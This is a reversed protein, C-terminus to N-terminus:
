GILEDALLDMLLGDHWGAGDADREYQRLVGVPRFGVSTYTRIAATNTASPDITLRHHGLTDILHHAVVRIAERGYGRGQFEPDLFIDIGASRYMEDDEQYYQIVGATRGDVVIVLQVADPDDPQFDGDRVPGWWQAVAPRSQIATLTERDGAALPRLTL